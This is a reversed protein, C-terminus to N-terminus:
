DAMRSLRVLVEGQASRFELGAGDRLMEFSRTAELNALFQDEVASLTPECAMRTAAVGGFSLERGSSAARAM